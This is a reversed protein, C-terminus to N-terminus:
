SRLFMFAVAAIASATAIAFVMMTQRWGFHAIGLAICPPWLAGAINQGSSVLAVASGRHRDFWRSINIILPVNIAGTGLFGVLLGHALLLEWAGGTSAWALGVGTMAAGFLVTRVIGVREAVWGFAISGAGSGLWALSNALAPVSRSSGLDTAIP